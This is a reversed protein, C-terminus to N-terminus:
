CYQRSRSHRRELQRCDSWCTTRDARGDLISGADGQRHNHCLKGLTATPQDQIVTQIVLLREVSRRAMADLRDPPPQHGSPGQSPSPSYARDDSERRSAFPLRGSPRSSPRNVLIMATMTASPGCIAAAPRHARRGHHGNCGAWATVWNGVQVMRDASRGHIDASVAIRM